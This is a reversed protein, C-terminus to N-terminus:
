KKVPKGLKMADENAQGPKQSDDQDRFLNQKAEPIGNVM